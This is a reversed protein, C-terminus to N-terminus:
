QQFIVAIREIIYTFIYLLLLIVIIFIIIIIIIISFTKVSWFM